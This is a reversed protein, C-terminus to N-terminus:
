MLLKTPSVVLPYSPTWGQREKDYEICAVGAVLPDSRCTLLVKFRPSIIPQSCFRELFQTGDKGLKHIGDIIISTQHVEKVEEVGKTLAELIEGDWADLVKKVTTLPPDEERLRSQDRDLIKHVLTSLFTTAISKAQRNDSVTLIHRLIAHAFATTSVSSCTFYFVAGTAQSAIHCSVDTMRCGPPGGFLCLVQPHDESKWRIFDEDRFIWYYKADAPNIPSIHEDKNTVPLLGLFTSKETQAEVLALSYDTNTFDNTLGNFCVEQRGL